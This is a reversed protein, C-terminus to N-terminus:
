VSSKILHMRHTTVCYHKVVAPFPISGRISTHDSRIYNNTHKKEEKCTFTTKIELFPAILHDLTVPMLNSFPFHGQLSIIKRLSNQSFGLYQNTNLQSNERM